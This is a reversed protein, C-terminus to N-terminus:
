GISASYAIGAEVFGDPSAAVPVRVSGNGLIYKNENKFTCVTMSPYRLEYAVATQIAM